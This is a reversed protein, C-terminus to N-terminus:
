GAGAHTKAIQALHVRSQIGLKGFIRRLHFNVTHTSIGLRRAIQRNTLARGVLAAVERERCTLGAWAPAAPQAEPPAGPLAGPVILVVILKM